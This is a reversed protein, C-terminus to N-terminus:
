DYLITGIKGKNMPRLINASSIYLYSVEGNLMVVVRRSLLPKDIDSFLDLLFVRLAKKTMSSYYKIGRKEFLHVMHFMNNEDTIIQGRCLLETLGLKNQLTDEFTQHRNAQGFFSREGTASSFRSFFSYAGFGKHTLIRSMNAPTIRSVALASITNLVEFELTNSHELNKDQDAFQKMCM